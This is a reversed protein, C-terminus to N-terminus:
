PILLRSVRQTGHQDLIAQQATYTWLAAAGTDILVGAQDASAAEFPYDLKAQALAEKASM